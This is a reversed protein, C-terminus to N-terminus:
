ATIIGCTQTQTRTIKTGVYQVLVSVINQTDM